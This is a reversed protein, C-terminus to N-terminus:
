AFKTVGPLAITSAPPKANWDYREPSLDEKSAMAQEWTISQGTYTAMRGLIAVLTSKSMYDGNNISKGSRISAFLEDHETQQSVNKKGKYVWPKDSSIQLARQSISATGRTGLVEVSTDNMTGSMQRCAAFLKAGNAYEYVV